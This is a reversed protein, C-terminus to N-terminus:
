DRGIKIRKCYMETEGDSYTIRINNGNSDASITEVSMIYRGSTCSSMTMAMLVSLVMWKDKKM